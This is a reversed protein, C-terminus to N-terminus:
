HSSSGQSQELSEIRKNLEIIHLTLEEIKEMMKKQLDGVHQGKDEIEAASPVNPLHHNEFIFKELDNLCSLEYDNNFVYDPWNATEVIIEKARMTGNVEFLNVPNVTGIGVKGDYTINLRPLDNTVLRFNHNSRTGFSASVTGIHSALIIGGDSRHSIGYNNDPTQVTLKEPAFDIGIGINLSTAAISLANTNNCVLRFNHPTYTGMGISGGAGGMRIGFMQDSEGLLTFGYDNNPGWITLPANAGQSGAGIWMRGDPYINLRAQGNTKLRFTHNSMTGLSASVGGIAEDVVIQDTAGTAVHTWGTQGLDSELTLKTDVLDRSHSNSGAVNLPDADHGIVVRGDPWVHMQDVGGAQLSLVHDSTTGISATADNIKTVFTISDPGGIQTLGISNADTQITLPSVPESTGIGVNSDYFINTGSTDWVSSGISVQNSSNVLWKQVSTDYQMTVMGMDELVLDEHNGTIIRNAPLATVDNDNLQMPFGSKNILAVFRGDMGSTIGAIVFSSDAGSIRYCSYKEANVDLALTISDPVLMDYTRFVVDGNIDLTATPTNTNIGVNQGVLSVMFLLTFASISTFIKIYKM